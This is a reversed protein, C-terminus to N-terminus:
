LSGSTTRSDQQTRQSFNVKLLSELTSQTLLSGYDGLMDACTSSTSPLWPNNVTSGNNNSFNEADPVDDLFQREQMLNVFNVANSKFSHGEMSGYTAVLM